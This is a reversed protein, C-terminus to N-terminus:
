VRMCLIMSHRVVLLMCVFVMCECSFACVCVYACLCVPVAGSHAAIYLFCDCKRTCYYIDAGARVLLQVCELSGVSSVIANLVSYGSVGYDNTNHSNIRYGM